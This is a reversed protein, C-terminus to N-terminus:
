ARAGGGAAAGARARRADGRRRDDERAAGAARGGRAALAALRTAIAGLDAAPVGEGLRTFGVLDCFGVSVDHVDSRRGAACSRPRWSRTACTRATTSCTCSASCSPRTPRRARADRDGAAARLRARHRGAAPARHQRADGGGRRRAGRGRRVRAVGGGARRAAHRGRPVGRARPRRVPRARRARAVDPPPLPLGAARRVAELAALDVGVERRWRARRASRRAGGLALEAPLLALRGEAVAARLEEVARRGRAAVRAAGRAVVRPPSRSATSCGSRPSTPRGGSVRPRAGARRPAVAVPIGNLVANGSLADVLAEDALVNANVGAHAGAVGLRAGRADHGWGHPLSVVGPM